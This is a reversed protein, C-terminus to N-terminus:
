SGVSEFPVERWGRDQVGIRHPHALEPKRGALERKGHTDDLRVWLSDADVYDTTLQNCMVSGGQVLAEQSNPPVRGSDVRELSATSYWLRRM